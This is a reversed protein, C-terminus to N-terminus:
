MCEMLNAIPSLREPKTFPLAIAPYNGNIPNCIGFQKVPGVYKIWDSRAKHSGANAEAEWKHRRLTYKTCLGHTDFNSLPVIYSTADDLAQGLM